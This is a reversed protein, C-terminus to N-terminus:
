VTIKAKFGKNPKSEFIITGNIAEMRNEMNFLGSGKKISCGTGNDSYSINLKHGDSNFVFVVNSAQSHKKMNVLLEQIVRYLTIKKISDLQEWVIDNLGRTIINVSQNKYSLLLDKLANSYNGELDITNNERSIDRTKSYIADLNDLIDDTHTDSNQLKTMVQYVDNAVEDHVKKSIRTEALYVQRIKDKKHKSKLIFIVLIALVTVLIGLTLYFLKLNKEKEKELAILKLNQEKEQVLKETESVKYKIAAYKNQRQFKEKELTDNLAIFDNFSGHQNQLLRTKLAGIKYVPTNIKNAIIELSDGYKLALNKRSQNFYFLSLHRYSSFLGILDKSAKRFALALTMNKLGDNLNLKSQYFGLNDLYVHKIRQNTITLSKDYYSLLVDVAKKFDNQDAYNNAINTIIAIDDEEKENLTLAKEYYTNSNNYDQVKRYIMGLQNYLRVRPNLTKTANEETDLIQLAKVTTSESENYLGMEFQSYAILEQYYAAKTPSNNKLAEKTKNEFYTYAKGVKNINRTDKIQNYYYNTSDVPTQGILQNSGLCITILLALGNIFYSISNNKM